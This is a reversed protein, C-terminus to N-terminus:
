KKFEECQPNLVGILYVRCQQDIGAVVKQISKLGGGWTQSWQQYGPSNCHLCNNLGVPLTSLVEILAAHACKYNAGWISCGWGPQILTNLIYNLSVRTHISM